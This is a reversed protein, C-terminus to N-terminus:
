RNKGGSKDYFLKAFEYDSPQWRNTWIKSLQILWVTPCCWSEFHQKVAILVAYLLRHCKGYKFLRLRLTFNTQPNTAAPLFPAVDTSTVRTALLISSNYFNGARCKSAIKLDCPISVFMQSPSWIRQLRFLFVLNLLSDHKGSYTRSEISQMENIMQQYKKKDCEAIGWGSRTIM